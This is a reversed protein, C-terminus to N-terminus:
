TAEAGAAILRWHKVAPTFEHSGLLFGFQFWGVGPAVM